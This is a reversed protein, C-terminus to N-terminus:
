EQNGKKTKKWKGRGEAKRTGRLDLELTQPASYAGGAPGAAL